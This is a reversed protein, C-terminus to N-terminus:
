KLILPLYVTYVFGVERMAEVIETNRMFNNWILGTRYNEIMILLIGVDIGIYDNDLWNSKCKIVNLSDKLGFLGWLRDHYHEYMYRLSAISEKPTFVISGGVASPAITGDNRKTGDNNIIEPPYGYDVYATGTCVNTPTPGDSATFGWLAFPPNSLTNSYWVRQSYARNALTASRSNDFYNVYEDKKGRFDIWAQPYQHAFLPGPPHIVMTYGEYTGTIYTAAWKDWSDAPIPHTPSGIALLYLILAENYGEWVWKSDDNARPCVNVKEPTWCMYLKGQDNLFSPWVAAEYIATARTVIETETFCQKVSLVGAMLLATDITSVGDVDTWMPTGDHINVFHYFLGHTGSVVLDNPDGPDDYFSNLTTLVRTYAAEHSIWGREKAACIATLGFGTSAISAVEPETAREPILGTAPDAYEWFYWFARRELVDLLQDDSTDQDDKDVFVLDDFYLTGSLPSVIMGSGGRNNEFIITVERMHHWDMNHWEINLDKLNVIKEEWESSVGSVPVYAMNWNQDMFRIYFQTGDGVTNGEGKVWFRFEDFFSLDLFIGTIWDGVFSHEYYSALSNTPTVTYTLALAYGGDGHHPATVFSSSLLHDDACANSSGIADIECWGGRQAIFNNRYDSPDNMSDLYYSIGASATVGATVSIPNSDKLSNRVEPPASLVPKISSGPIGLMSLLLLLVATTVLVVGIALLRKQTM